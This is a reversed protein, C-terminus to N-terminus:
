CRVKEDDRVMAERRNIERHINRLPQAAGAKIRDADKVAFRLRPLYQDHRQAAAERKIDDIVVLLTDAFEDIEQWAGIEGAHDQGSSSQSARERELLGM